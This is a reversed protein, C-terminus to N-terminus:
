KKKDLRSVLFITLNLVKAMKFKISLLVFRYKLALQEIPYYKLLELWIKDSCITKIIRVIEKSSFGFHGLSFLLSRTYGILLRDARLQFKSNNMESSMKRCIEAHLIKNKEFRDARFSKTLSSENSCYYYMADPIFAIKKAKLLYDIHFIIDESIFERESPFKINHMDIISKSYIGHWVSMSYKRDVPYSPETGIMDLLVGEIEEKADFIKIADVERVPTIELTSSVKNFGCYVTDLAEAKATNYLKEFMSVDVYDDSDIFALFEGTAIAMGSNRAFGLGGNTKHIVKIRNDKKAYEDCMKPCNDPSEDDVLIIEIEKLTQNLLSDMCRPLYNEVNYIPVIVSVKIHQM